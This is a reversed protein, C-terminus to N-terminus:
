NPFTKILWEEPIKAFHKDAVHVGLLHNTKKLNIGVVPAGCDGQETSADYSMVEKSEQIVNERPRVLSESTAVGDILVVADGPEPQSVTTWAPVHALNADIKAFWLHHDKNLVWKRPKGDAGTSLKRTDGNAAKYFLNSPNEHQVCWVVDKYRGLWCARHQCKDDRYLALLRKRLNQALVKVKGNLSELQPVKEPKKEEKEPITKAEKEEQAEPITELQVKAKAAKKKERRKQKKEARKKDQESKKEEVTKQIVAVPLDKVVKAPLKKAETV